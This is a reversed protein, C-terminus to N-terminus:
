VSWETSYKRHGSLVFNLISCLIEYFSKIGIKHLKVKKDCMTNYLLFKIFFCIFDAFSIGLLYTNQKIKNLYKNYTLWKSIFYKLQIYNSTHM